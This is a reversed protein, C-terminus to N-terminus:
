QNRCELVSLNVRRSFDRQRAQVGFKHFISHFLPMFLYDPVFPPYLFCTGLVLTRFPTWPPFAKSIQQFIPTTETNTFLKLKWFHLRLFIIEFYNCSFPGRKEALNFPRLGSIALYKASTSISVTKLDFYASGNNLAGIHQYVLLM